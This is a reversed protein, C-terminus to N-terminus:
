ITIVVLKHLARTAAIYDANKELYTKPKRRVQVVADFELGKCITAPVIMVGEPLESTNNLVLRVSELEPNNFYLREAEKITPTIVAIHKFGKEMCLGLETQIEQRFNVSQIQKVPDGHRKFNIAGTLGILNQSYETIEVTSRYTKALKVLRANNLKKALDDLYAHNLVREISQYIDGLITKPCPYRKSILELAIEGYDQMEDIVCFKFEKYEQTGLIYDKIYLVPAVDEFRIYNQAVFINQSMGIAKLFALYIETINNIKFMGLLVKKIRSTVASNNVNEGLQDAVYDAIWEIRTAPKKNNYRENYLANIEEAKIKKDGLNIDKAEFSLSVVDNLFTKLSQFFEASEKYSVENARAQNGLLLDDLMEARSEFWLIGHLEEKAIEEFTTTYVNQEGLEPLVDSIYRSFLTSPSVIVIDKSSLRNKYLLYAVRHLAISTKGSGAVGQVLLNEYDNSRIIKNQEKQITSVIEKMRTGSSEGLVDQLIDDNITVSSDFAFILDEGEVKYQRKLLIEGSIEGDPAQYSAEGLEYDYYLSSIPARWDLVIPFGNENEVYGIGIYCSEAEKEGDEKFDIRGFYARSLEKECKFLAHEVGAKELNLNDLLNRQVAAEQADMDYFNDAIFKSLEHTRENYNNLASELLELRAKIASFVEKLHAKELELEKEELM